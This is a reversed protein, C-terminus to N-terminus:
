IRVTVERGGDVAQSSSEPVEAALRERRGGSEIASSTQIM